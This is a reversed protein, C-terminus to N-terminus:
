RQDIPVYKKGIEGSYKHLPRILRNDKWYEVIHAVWGISRCIAFFATFSNEDIGLASYVIPTWFDVNPYIGKAGLRKIGEEELRIATEYMERYIGGKLESIRRAMEKVIVARPDYHKYVRHGFGMVRRKSELTKELWREVNEPSGIEKLQRYVAETAGGHLPGKLALLGSAVSSYIDSLTSATVLAGFTSAPIGHEAHLIMLDDVMSVEVESPRQGRVMYLFNAAHSLSPDPPVVDLGRRIRMLMALAVALQAVLKLAQEKSKELDTVKEGVDGSYSLLIYSALANIIDKCRAVYRVNGMKEEDLTRYERLAKSLLDLEKRNPLRYNLLLFCVEEYCGYKVLDEIDYGVYYLKSNVVDIFSLVSETVYIGELGKHIPEIVM